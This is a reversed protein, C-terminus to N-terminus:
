DSGSLMAPMGTNFHLSGDRAFGNLAADKFSGETPHRDEPEAISFDLDGSRKLLFSPPEESLRTKMFNVDILKDKRKAMGLVSDANTGLYRNGYMDDLNGDGHKKTHHIGATAVNYNKRLYSFYKDLDKAPTEESLSQSSLKGLSDFFLVGPKYEKLLAEVFQRGEPKNLPIDEGIPAILFNEKLLDKTEQDMGENMIDTFYKLSPHGM